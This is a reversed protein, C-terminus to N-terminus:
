KCTNRLFHARNCSLLTSMLYDGCINILENTSFYAGSTLYVLESMHKVYHKRQQKRGIQVFDLFPCIFYFDRIRGAVDSCCDESYEV